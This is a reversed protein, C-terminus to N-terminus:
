IETLEKSGTEPVMTLAIFAAILFSPLLFTIAAAHSGLLTYLQSELFLGAVLAIAAFAQCIASVTVRGITPFLEGTITLFIAHTAFVGTLAVVWAYPAIQCSAGYFGHFGACLIISFFAFGIRRGIKDTLYGGLLNGTLAVSGGILFLLAVNGSSYSCSEQLYKSMFALGASIPLHYTIALAVVAVMRKKDRLMQKAASFINLGTSQAAAFKVSEKLFRRAYILPLIPIAALLYLTRWGDEFYTSLPYAASALGDGLGGFAALIGIAIGRRATAVMELIMIASLIEDASTFARAITQLLIFQEPTQAFATGITCATFGAITAMLLRRRGAFDALLALPLAALAGLRTYGVFQGLEQEAIGLDRQIDPLALSMLAFDYRSILFATGLLAILSWESRTM